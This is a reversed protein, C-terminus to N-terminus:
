RWGTRKILWEVAVAGQAAQFARLTPLGPPAPQLSGHIFFGALAAIVATIAAPDAGHAPAYHTLLQAPTPGGQMAVSPAFAILDVWAAGIHAHPWDVIWVQEDTLLLNDARLDFHILTNGAAAAPAQAELTALAALHRQAWPHLQAVQSVPATALRGWGCIRERFLTETSPALANPLPSPTLREALMSMTQLIRDLEASVWPQAPHRGVIEEFWLAIWGDPGEDYVGLLRPVPVGAPLAAVIAAERRHVLPSTPNPTPGVAKLFLREGDALQLRAAVGPSFGSAQSHATVV